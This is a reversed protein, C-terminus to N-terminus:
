RKTDLIKYLRMDGESLVLEFGETEETINRIGQWEKYDKEPFLAYNISGKSAADLLLVYKANTTQVAQRVEPDHALNVLSTRLCVSEDTQGSYPDLARYYVPLSNRGYTFVSGDYPFNVVVGPDQEVIQKAREVFALEDDQYIQVTTDAYERIGETIHSFAHTQPSAFAVAQFPTFCLFFFPVCICIAALANRVRRDHIVHQLFRGFMQITWALGWAALPMAAIALVAGIRHYDTYWFGAMLSKMLGETSAAVGYLLAAILYSCILYRRKRQVLANVIGTLVFLALLLQAPIDVLTLTLVGLVSEGSSEFSVWNYSVVGRFAPSAWLIVWLALSVLVVGACVAFARNKSHMVQRLAAYLRWVCFPLILVVASFVANPQAAGLAIGGVCVFVLWRLFSGKKFLFLMAVGFLVLPLLSFAMMNSYLPGFVMMKWPFIAFALCTLAGCLIILKNRGFLFHFFLCISAPFVVAICAFNIATEAVPAPTGLADSALAAILHWAGPYFSFSSIEIPASDTGILDMYANAHLISYHGSSVFAHIMNLHLANDFVQAFKQPDGVSHLYYLSTLVCGVGVYCALSAWRFKEGSGTPKAPHKRVTLAFVGLGLLVVPLVLAFWAVKVNILTYFIGIAVYAVISFLPACVLASFRDPCLAKAYLYGPLYLIALMFLVALFCSGWM